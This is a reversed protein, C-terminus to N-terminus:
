KTGAPEWECIYGDVRDCRQDIWTGDGTVAMCHEYCRSLGPLPGPGSNVCRSEARDPEGEEWNTYSLPEGTIWRYDGKGAATLAVDEAGGLFKSDNVLETVLENEAASQITALHGGRTECDKRALEFEAQDYGAYCHHDDSELASSSHQTCVVLCDRCGKKESSGPDCEEGEEIVGNGCVPAPPVMPEGAVGASDGASGGTQAGGSSRGATPMASSGGSAAGGKGGSASGAVGGGASTGGSMAGGKGAGSTGTSGAEAGGADLGGGGSARPTNSDFDVSSSISCAAVSLVAVLCLYRATMLEADVVRRLRRM